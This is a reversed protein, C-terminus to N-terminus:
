LWKCVTKEHINNYKLDNVTSNFKNKLAEHIYVIYGHKNSKKPLYRYDHKINCTNDYLNM